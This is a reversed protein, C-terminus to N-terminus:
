MVCALKNNTSTMVIMMMMMMLMLMKITMTMVMMMLMMMLLMRVVGGPQTHRHHYLVTCFLAGGRNVNLIISVTTYTASPRCYSALHLNSEANSLEKRLCSVKSWM